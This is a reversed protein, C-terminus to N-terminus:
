LKMPVKEPSPRGTGAMDEGDAGMKENTGMDEPKQRSVGPM